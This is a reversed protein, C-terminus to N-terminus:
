GNRSNPAFCVHEPPKSNDAKSGFRDNVPQFFKAPARATLDPRRCPASGNPIAAMQPGVIIEGKRVTSRRVIHKAHSLDNFTNMEDVFL